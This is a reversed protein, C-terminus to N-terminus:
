MDCFATVGSAALAHTGTELGEWDTRGPENLHVHADIFGPLVLFESADLEERAEGTWNPSIQEIQGERVVLDVPTSDSPRKVRRIVLDPTM